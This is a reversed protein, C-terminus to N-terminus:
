KRRRPATRRPTPSGAPRPPRVMRGESWVLRLHPVDVPARGVIEEAQVLRVRGQIAGGEALLGLGGGELDFFAFSGWGDKAVKRGPARFGDFAPIGEASSADLVALFTGGEETEIRVRRTVKEPEPPASCVPLTGLVELLAAQTDPNM